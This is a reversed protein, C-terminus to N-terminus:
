EYEYTVEIWSGFDDREYRAEYNILRSEDAGQFVVSRDDKRDADAHSLWSEFSKEEDSALSLRAVRIFLVKASEEKLYASSTMWLRAVIASHQCGVSTVRLVDGNTLLGTVVHRDESAVMSKIETSATWRTVDLPLRRM